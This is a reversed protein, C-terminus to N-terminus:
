CIDNNGAVMRQRYKSFKSIFSAQGSQQWAILSESGTIAAWLLEIMNYWDHLHIHEAALKGNKGHNHYCGLPVALGSTPYGFTYLLSAECVGGDLIQRQYKFHRNRNTLAKAIRTLFSTIEPDFICFADGVRIVVGRGQEAGPIVKSAELSIVPLSRPLINGMAMGCAGIFGVEEARTFIIHVHAQPQRERLLQMLAVLAACGALDDIARSHIKNGQRRFPPMATMAFGSARTCKGQAILRSPRALAENRCIEVVELRASDHGDYWVLRDGPQPCAIGGLFDLYIRGDDAIATVEFGPHDMHAMVGLAPGIPGRHYELFLNGYIDQDVQMDQGAAFDKIYRIVQQEHFPATPLSLVEQLIKLHKENIVTM